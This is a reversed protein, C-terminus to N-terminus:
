REGLERMIIDYSNKVDYEDELYKRANKGIIDLNNQKCVRDILSKFKKPDDSECWYGFNNKEIIEGLDTNKDTCAVVPMSYEMYALLRSPFNPITFRHDLFILGIDCSSLLKDYEDKPLGNIIMVNKPKYTDVYKKLNIYETGTGCIVFFRDDLNQNLKLCEIVFPIDQPKGLNGGYIFILKDLPLGYEKRIESKNIKKISKIEITNPSVHLKKKDINNNNLLFSINAPSLCGIKDSLSYLEKEKKRFYRYILGKIGTKSLMGLDVANQPFIDKLILYTKAKDRKKVYRVAKGFTVPPTVYLVLDFKIDSFYKKIARVLMGEILLTSIGKEIVNTKQINGVKLKLIKLNTESIIYTESSNRKEQPSIAYIKHNHKIFERLLDTYIGSQSISNFDMLSLFLIKM